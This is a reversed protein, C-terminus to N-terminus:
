PANCRSSANTAPASCRLGPKEGVSAGADGAALLEFIRSAVSAQQL